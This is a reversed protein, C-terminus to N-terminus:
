HAKKLEKAVMIEYPSFKSEINNKLKEKEPDVNRQKSHSLKKSNSKKSKITKQIKM